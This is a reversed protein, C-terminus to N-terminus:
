PACSPRWIAPRRTSLRRSGSWPRWSPISTPCSTVRSVIRFHSLNTILKFWSSLCLLSITHKLSVRKEHKPSVREVIANFSQLVKPDSLRHSPSGPEKLELKKAHEAYFEEAGNHIPSITRELKPRTPSEISGGSKVRTELILRRAQELLRQQREEQRPLCMSVVLHPNICPLVKTHCFISSYFKHSTKRFLSVFDTYIITSSRSKILAM